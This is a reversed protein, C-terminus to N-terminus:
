ESVIESIEELDHKADEVNEAAFMRYLAFALGLNLDQCHQFYNHNHLIRRFWGGTM